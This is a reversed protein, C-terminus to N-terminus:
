KRPKFKSKRFIVEPETQMIKLIDESTNDAYAKVIQWGIYQGLRGPSENDLELYFKSFPADAIFRNSLKPDTDYLLEKEIFYSWIQSENLEAWKLQEESYGIRESVSKFPIMVDKFYLLKGHYIMEDLLTKRNTQFVYKKAYGETVETILQSKKMNAAIYMPINQYFEHDSGLFNDLAILLISDTVITKERYAVDNTLTIVRPTKFTKDYYKLHQFLGNLEEKSSNFDPFTKQVESLLEHQLTDKMRSIVISDPMQKSFLFPYDKKLKPLDQPTSNLFAQDFREVKFDTDIKAIEKETKSDSDCSLLMLGLFFIFYNRVFM